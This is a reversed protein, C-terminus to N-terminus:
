FLEMSYACSFTEGGEILLLGEKESFDSSDGETSDVGYWPELCVYPAKKGAIQWIGFDPFGEFNMKVGESGKDSKLTISDSKLGSLIIPGKDFLGHNLDLRNEDELLVDTEGTLFERKWRRSIRERDSFELHYDDFGLGEKLPCNFAPHAGVSFLLEEESPNEVRYEVRLVSGDLHFTIDLIFSFPYQSRTEESDSLRFTCFEDGEEAVTFLSRSAFGHNAMKVTKGKYVWGEKPSMGVVPFLQPSHRGWFAPDAQWLYEKGELKFSKLEAGMPDVLAEIKGNKLTIM